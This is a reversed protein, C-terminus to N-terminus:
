PLSWTSCASIGHAIRKESWLFLLFLEALSTTSEEVLVTMKGEHSQGAVAAAPQVLNLMFHKVLQQYHCRKTTRVLQWTDHDVNMHTNYCWDLLLM